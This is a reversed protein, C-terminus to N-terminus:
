PATQLVTPLLKMETKEAFVMQAALDAIWLVTALHRVKLLMAFVTAVSIALQAPVATLLVHVVTRLLGNVDVTEV